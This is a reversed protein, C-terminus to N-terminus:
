SKIPISINIGLGCNPESVLEFTGQNMEVREKMGPLGLGTMLKDKNLDLGVGDDQINLNIYELGSSDVKNLTILIKSASSHKLANTLSEQVIRFLSINLLDTLDSPIGSFSFHCFVDDQRSNWDDIMSQLAKVLGFEDLVSPRLRHMMNKAVQYIHDSYEIITKVSSNIQDKDPNKDNMVAAAVAKIAAITQGLEDHLEQALHRREEEQIELSRQTLLQNKAKSELLVKAMHNFQQSIRDLEPLRFHPLELQYNGKEIDSLGALITDIPALYKGIALYLLINALIIFALLFILISQVETWNEDIEDSPDARIIIGKPPYGSNYLWHRVETPPPKVLMVFWNPANIDKLSSFGEVPALADNSNHIDIHLHRTLDLESLRQLVEIQQQEDSELSASTFAIEILQLALNATSEVEDQVANRANAIIYFSSCIFLSIFLLTILLNLRIRLSM